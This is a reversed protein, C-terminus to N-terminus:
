SLKNKVYQLIENLNLRTQSSAIDLSNVEISITTKDANWKIQFTFKVIPEKAAKESELNIGDKQQFNSEETDSVNSDNSKEDNM